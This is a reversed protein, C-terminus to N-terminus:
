PLRRLTDSSNARSSYARSQHHGAAGYRKEHCRAIQYGAVCRLYAANAPFENIADTIEKAGFSGKQSNGPGSLGPQPQSDICAINVAYTKGDKAKEFKEVVIKKFRDPDKKEIAAPLEYPEM